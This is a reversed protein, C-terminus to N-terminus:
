KFVSRKFNILQIAQLAISFIGCNIYNIDSMFCLMAVLHFTAIFTSIIKVTWRRKEDKIPRYHSPRPSQVFIIVVSLLGILWYYPKALSLNLSPVIICILCFIILSSIFCKFATNFHLGGSFARISCFILMSFLFLSTRGLLTFIVLLLIFKIAEGILSQLSYNIKELDEKSKISSNHEIYKTFKLALRDVM